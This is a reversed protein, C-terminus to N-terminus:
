DGGIARSFPTQACTDPSSGQQADKWLIDAAVYGSVDTFHECESPQFWDGRRGRFIGHAGYQVCIADTALHAKHSPQKEQAKRACNGGEAGLRERRDSGILIVNRGTNKTVSHQGDLEFGAFAYHYESASGGPVFL